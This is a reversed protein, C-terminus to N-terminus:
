KGDSDTSTGGKKFFYSKNKKNNKKIDNLYLLRM